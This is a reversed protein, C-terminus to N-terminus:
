SSRSPRYPGDTSSSDDLDDPHNDQRQKYQPTTNTRSNSCDHDYDHNDNDHRGNYPCSPGLTANRDHNESDNSKPYGGYAARKDHRPIYSYGMARIDSNRMSELVNQTALWEQYHERRHVEKGM